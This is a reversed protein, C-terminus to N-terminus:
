SCLQVASQFLTSFLPTDVFLAKAEDVQADSWLENLGHSQLKNLAQMLQFQKCLQMHQTTQAAEHQWLGFSLWLQRVSYWMAWHHAEVDLQQQDGEAVKTADCVAAQEHRLALDFAGPCAAQTEVAVETLAHLLLREALRVLPAAIM